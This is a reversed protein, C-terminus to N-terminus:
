GVALRLPLLVHNSAAPVRMVFDRTGTCKSLLVTLVSLLAAEISHGAAGSAQRFRRVAPGGIRLSRAATRVAREAGLDLDLPEIDGEALTSQWDSTSIKSVIEGSATFARRESRTEADRRGTTEVH